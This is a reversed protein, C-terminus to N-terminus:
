KQCVVQFLEYKIFDQRPSGHLNLCAPHTHHPRARSGRSDRTVIPHSNGTLSM